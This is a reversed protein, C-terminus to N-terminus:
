TTDSEQAGTSQLGGPKETCPIRWNLINSHTAMEKELPDEQGLSHVQTEQVTPLNKVLSGGPFGGEVRYSRPLNDQLFIREQATERPMWKTIAGVLTESGATNIKKKFVNEKLRAEQTWWEISTIQRSTMPSKKSSFGAIRETQINRLKTEIQCLRGDERKFDARRHKQIAQQKHKISRQYSYTMNWKIYKDGAKRQLWAVFPYSLFEPLERTRM